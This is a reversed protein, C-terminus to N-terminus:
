LFLFFIDLFHLLFFDHLNFILIILKLSDFIIMRFQCVISLISYNTQILTLIHIKSQQCKERRQTYCKMSNLRLFLRLYQPDVDFTKREQTLSLKINSDILRLVLKTCEKVEYVASKQTSYLAKMKKRLLRAYKNM